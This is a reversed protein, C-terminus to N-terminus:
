VHARGIEVCREGDALAALAQLARRPQMGHNMSFTLYRAHAPVPALVGAQSNMSNEMLVLEVVRHYRTGSNFALSCRTCYVQAGDIMRGSICGIALLM